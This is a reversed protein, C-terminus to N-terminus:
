RRMFVLWSQFINLLKGDTGILNIAGMSLNARLHLYDKLSYHDFMELFKSNGQEMYFEVAPEM